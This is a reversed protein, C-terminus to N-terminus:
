PRMAMGRLLDLMIVALEDGRLSPIYTSPVTNGNPRELLFGAKCLRTAAAQQGRAPEWETQGNENAKAVAVLVQLDTLTYRRSGM